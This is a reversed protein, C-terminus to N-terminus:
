FGSASPLIVLHASSSIPCFMIYVGRLVIL